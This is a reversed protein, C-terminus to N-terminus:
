LPVVLTATDDPVKDLCERVTKALDAHTYPKQLYIARMKVLLETNVENATYGSTFIIRLGPHHVLLQRALEAGSIGEPMVMDTLLLDIEDAKERWQDLAERGSSAELICYGYGALIDRAMERLIAEDEVILITESGGAAMIAPPLKVKPASVTKDSAPLYVHFTTGKQPESTVEVWGEHQKVIGYVTALGLGTGKGVEKTTFFPEFIRQLTSTDMGIGTDTVQLRVFRGARADAHSKVYDDDITVTDLGISLRGGGPMADRANVTLNMIVQEIMGIDGEVAPLENPAKFDLRITEGLLRELMRSMNGVVERLDLLDSQIVNKRSFMLLQRTLGAAREAAFYVAQLPDLIEQPLALKALMASSHGQIITLMNNFDHAVGAALQGVSEMKQSQRLQEELNLRDTIDDVYCHVVHSPLVPHFLWSFTRGNMETELRMRSRGTNLCDHIIEHIEAPLVERPHNKRVSLALNQAAENFYSLTGDEAFEMTAAPNLKAFSAAKEIEVDARRREVAMGLVTAVAILFQTEEPSFDRRQSAHAGIVGFPRGRTPIAVTISSHIGHESFLPPNTFHTNTEVDNVVIMEGSSLTLGMQSHNDVTLKSEGVCGRKWGAGAQLLLQGDRLREWVTSYELELTHAILLGARNLLPSLNNETLAFQGLAAIATQQLARNFLIKEAKERESIRQQLSGAMSDFVKALQGFEDETPELGTRATLDGRAFRQAAASLARVQRLIFHEGGYWAAILALLGVAFSAWPVDLAYQKLWKPAFEWFWSQNIVFTLVLAPAIAVFVSTVLQMRVTSFQKLTKKIM